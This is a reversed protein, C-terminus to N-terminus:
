TFFKASDEFFEVYNVYQVEGDFVTEGGYVVIYTKLKDVKTENRATDSRKKIAVIYKDNIVINNDKTQGYVGTAGFRRYLEFLVLLRYLREYIYGNIQETKQAYDQTVDKNDKETLLRCVQSGFVMVPEGVNIYLSVDTFIERIVEFDTSGEANDCLYRRKIASYKRQGLLNLDKTLEFFIYDFEHRILHPIDRLFAYTHQKLNTRSYLLLDLGRALYETSDVACCISGMNEIYTDITAKGKYAKKFLPYNLMTIDYVAIVKNENLEIASATLQDTTAITLVDPYIMFDLKRLDRVNQVDDLLFIRKEVRNDSNDQLDQLIHMVRSEAVIGRCVKHKVAFDICYAYQRYIEELVATKGTGRLGTILILGGSNEKILPAIQKCAYKAIVSKDFMIEYRLM